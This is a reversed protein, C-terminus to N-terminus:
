LSFNTKFLNLDFLLIIKYRENLKKKKKKKKKKLLGWQKNMNVNINDKHSFSNLSVLM